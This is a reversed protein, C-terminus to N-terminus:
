AERMISALDPAIRSFHKINHTYIATAGAKRACALIIADYVMAGPIGADAVDRIVALTEIATLSVVLLKTSMQAVFAQAPKPPVKEM